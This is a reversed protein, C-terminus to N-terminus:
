MDVCSSRQRELEREPEPGRLRERERERECEQRERVDWHIRAFVCVFVSSVTGSM